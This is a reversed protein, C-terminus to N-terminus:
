VSGGYDNTDILRSDGHGSPTLGPGSGGYKAYLSVATAAKGLGAIAYSSELGAGAAQSEYGGVRGAAADFRLQRAKAEGEYLAVNARYVGEGRANSILRVVTPDSAGGGSSAAVALARSAVLNAQRRQEAATRQSIAVATGAQEEAQWAAFEAAVRAREGQVRAMRGTELNGWLQLFAGAGQLYGAQSMSAM